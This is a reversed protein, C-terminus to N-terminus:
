KRKSGLDALTKMSFYNYITTGPHPSVMERVLPSLKIADTLSREFLRSDIQRDLERNSLRDRICLNLYFYRKEATKSRSIITMNNSWSIERLVTSLKEDTLFYTEYFQKM